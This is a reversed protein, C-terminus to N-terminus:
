NTYGRGRKESWTRPKRAGKKVNSIPIPVLTETSLSHLQPAVELIGLDDDKIAGSFAIFDFSGHIVDIMDVAPGRIMGPFSVIENGSEHQMGRQTAVMVFTRNSDDNMSIGQIM